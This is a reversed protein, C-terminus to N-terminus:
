EQIHDLVAALKRRWRSSTPSPGVSWLATAVGGRNGVLSRRYQVAGGGDSMSSESEATAETGGRM